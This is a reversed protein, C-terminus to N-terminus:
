FRRHYALRSTIPERIARSPFLEGTQLLTALGPSYLQAAMDGTVELAGTKPDYTEASHPSTFILIREDPLLVGVGAAGTAAFTGTAPDYLEPGISVDGSDSVIGGAILVKGSTLLMAAHGARPTTMKGTPSFTGTSQALAGPTIVLSLLASVLVIKMASLESRSKM